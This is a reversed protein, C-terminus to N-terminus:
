GPEKVEDRRAAGRYTWWRWLLELPGQENQELWARSAVVQVAFVGIALLSLQAYELRAGLGLGWGTLLAGMAVSQLAYNTLPMRGAPALWRQLMRPASHLIFDTYAFALVVSAAQCLYIWAPMALNAEPEAHTLSWTGYVLALPLGAGLGIARARRWIPASRDSLWGARHALAGTMMLAIVLPLGLLNAQVQWLFLEARLPWQALYGLTATTQTNTEIAEVSEPIAGPAGSLPILALVLWASAFIWWRRAARQITAANADAYRLLVFGAIAYTQTIDGFYLFIGHLLGFLLLFFMRRRYLRRPDAFRQLKDYLLSFGAGFLMGFLPMFKGVVFTATLFYAVGDAASAQADLYGIPSPGGSLFSQINVLLIGALAFGRLADLRPDRGAPSVRDHREV